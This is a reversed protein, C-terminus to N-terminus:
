LFRKDTIRRKEIRFEGRDNRIVIVAGTEKILQGSIVSGDITKVLVRRNGTREQVVPKEFTKIIRSLESLSSKKEDDSHLADQFIAQYTNQVEDSIETTRKLIKENEPEISLAKIKESAKLIENDNLITSVKESRKRLTKSQDYYSSIIYLRRNALKRLGPNQKMSIVKIYDKIAQNSNGPIENARGRLFYFSQNRKNEPVQNLSKVALRYAMAKFYLLGKDAATPVRNIKVLSKQLM